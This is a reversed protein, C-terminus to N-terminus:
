FRHDPFKERIGRRLQEVFAPPHLDRAARREVCELLDLWDSLAPEKIEIWQIDKGARKPREFFQWKKGTKHAFAHRKVGDEGPTTWGIESKSGM